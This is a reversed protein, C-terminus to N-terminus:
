LRCLGFCDTWRLGLFGRGGGRLRRPLRAWFYLGGRPEWWEIGAPFHQQLAHLM